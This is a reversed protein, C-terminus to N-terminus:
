GPENFARRGFLGCAPICKHLAPLPQALSRAFAGGGERPGPLLVQEEVVVVHPLRSVQFTFGLNPNVIDRAKKVRQFVRGYEQREESMLYAIVLAASRSVGQHCHM